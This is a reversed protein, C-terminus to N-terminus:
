WTHFLVPLHRENAAIFAPAYGSDTYPFGNINHLKIGLFGQSLRLAVERQVADADGPWLCIYGLIREPYARMAALLEDNGRAMEASTCRIHSCFIQDIGIRDMAAIVSGVSLDPICFAYRGLHGHMDIIPFSTLPEGNRGRELVTTM